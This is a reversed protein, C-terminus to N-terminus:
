FDYTEEKTFPLIHMPVLQKYFPSNELLAVAELTKTNLRFHNFFNKQLEYQTRLM